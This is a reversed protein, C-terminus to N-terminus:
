KSSVWALIAMAITAFSLPILSFLDTQPVVGCATHLVPNATLAFLMFSVVSFLIALTFSNKLELYDQLYVFILYASFGLMILSLLTRLFFLYESTQAAYATNISFATNAFLIVMLSVSIIAVTAIVAFITLNRNASKMM